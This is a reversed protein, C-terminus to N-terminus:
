PQGFRQRYEISSMFGNVMTRTDTPNANLYNLWADYGTPEPARRLYGYYQMAVFARNFETNFVEDSDAIARLVQGRTVTEGIGSLRNILDDSTLMVKNMGDPATPDPTTIQTLGYRDLLTTVYQANTILDYGNMFEARQVFGSSFAAKRQFVEDPTQGSVAGMDTVIEGYTPLRNFALKYFRYVFYGKLQFEQSGFFSQSVAIRDCNASASNPDLNNVDPCGNLVGLWANLGATEPERFLFDLYHQRVFFQLDDIPNPSAVDGLYSVIAADGVGNSADSVGGGIIKGNPLIAVALGFSADKTGIPTILRGNTGFRADPSGDPNLRAVAFGINNGNGGISAHGFAVIKGDPQLAVSNGVFFSSETKFIGNAAFSPDILGNANFRVIESGRDAYGAVVIKGDPQLVSDLGGDISPPTSYTVRGNVGFRSDLSGDANYRVLLIDYNYSGVLVIKGDPQLLMSNVDSSPGYNSAIATIVKGGSGFNNDLSGDTNYRVIGFKYGSGNVFIFGMVVIKGDSQLVVGRPDEYYYPEFQGDGVATFVKGGTGFSADLTGNANYRSVAFDVAIYLNGAANLTFKQGITVIKGDPQLATKFGGYEYDNGILIKGNAGFSADPTGSSNYRAIFGSFAYECPCWPDYDYSYGSVIIKGDPQVQISTPKDSFESFPSIVIGGNGFSPDLDSPAAQIAACLWVISLLPALGRTLWITERLHSKQAAKM